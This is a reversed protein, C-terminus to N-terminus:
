INFVILELLFYIIKKYGGGLFFHHGTNQFHSYPLELFIGDAHPQLYIITAESSPLVQLDLPPRLASLRRMFLM